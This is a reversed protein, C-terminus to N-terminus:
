PSLSHATCFEHDAAAAVIHVDDTDAPPDAPLLGFEQLSLPLLSSAKM